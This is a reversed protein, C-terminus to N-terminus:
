ATPPMVPRRKTSSPSPRWPAVLRPVAASALAPPTRGGSVSVERPARGFSPRDGALLGFALGAALSQLRAAKGGGGNGRGGGAPASAAAGAPATSRLKYASAITQLLLVFALALALGLTVAAATSASRATTVSECVEESEASSYLTVLHSTADQIRALSDRLSHWDSPGDAASVVESSM